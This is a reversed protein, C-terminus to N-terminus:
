LTKYINEVIGVTKYGVTLYYAAAHGSYVIRYPGRVEDDVVATIPSDEIIDPQFTLLALTRAALDRCPKLNDQSWGYVTVGLSRRFVLRNESTGSGDDNVVILPYSGDYSDPVRNSVKLGDVDRIRARLYTCAWLEVDPATILQGRM